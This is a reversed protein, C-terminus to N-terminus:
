WLLWPQEHGEVLMQFGPSSGHERRAREFRHRRRRKRRAALQEEIGQLEEEEEEEAEAEAPATSSTSSSAAGSSSSSAAGGSRGPRPDPLVEWRGLGRPLRSLHCAICLLDCKPAMEEDLLDQM